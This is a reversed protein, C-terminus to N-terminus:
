PVGTTGGTYQFLAVADPSVQVAPPEGTRAVLDRFFHIGEGARVKVREGHKRQALHVIPRVPLPLTEAVDVVITRRIRSGRIEQLRPHFTDLLVVTEVGADHFQEQMERSVYLPNTNVAIAGIRLIGYFAIVFQPCNPLMIAVRDDEKVGLAALSAAFRMTADRLKGYTMSSSPLKPDVFFQLATADPREAATRDLLDPLTWDPYSLTRPVGQEYFRFWPAEPM